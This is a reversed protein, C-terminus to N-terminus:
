NGEDTYLINPLPFQTNLLTFLVHSNLVEQGIKRESSVCNNESM